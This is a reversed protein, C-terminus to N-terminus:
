RGGIPTGPPPAAPLSRSTAQDRRTLFREIDAWILARHAQQEPARPDASQVTELLRRLGWEAAARAEVTAESDAALDILADVVVRQVVRALGALEPPTYGTWTREILRAMVEEASPLDGHRAHLAALRAVRRRDLLNTVVMATLTRAAGLHDFAPYAASGFFWEDTPYGFARPAMAVLVSEPLVLEAPDIAGLVLELARRQREASVLRTAPRDDGRVAHDYEMGGVAKIAAELAYRHHLYVPVLRYNLWALPQGEELVAESFHDLLHRRVATVRALEVVADAGNIWQNVEPYSGWSANDGDPNFRIGRQQAESVIAALGTEEDGPAFESYAYRIALSDYAGPGDRYADSLDIREDVLRILPAPYDMVSSRGDAAAIFNHSLGLTHGVEHAAHQRRRAMVFEEATVHPDLQALWGSLDLAEAPAGAPVTGAHINYDTLSRYSDMRVAAKIIEGTRPDVFTPGISFGPDSRHVWQIVHYRADMPDMNDPMDDVRFAGIFGAAEFVANWWMAGDRFASRYPEPIARDLYYVIPEVPASAAPGPRQKVLRHRAVYRREYREDFGRAFDFFAVGNNGLHPDGRRPAFGPEPLQVLSHHQRLTVAEGAPAHARVLAGPDQAAFTLSVEIETNNPFGRTRSLYLASLESSVGFTGQGSSQLAGIVDMHDQLLYSTADILVRGDQEALVSFAAVTSVPFSEEVSRRLHEDAADARFRPNSLVLFVTPGIREFRAIAEDGIMGRDLGIRTSGLGTALSTLYLFEEGLRPIEVLLRGTSADWYMPYFGDRKEMSRTFDVISPQAVVLHPSVLALALALCAPVRFM